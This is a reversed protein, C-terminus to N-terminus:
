ANFFLGDWKGWAPDATSFCDTCMMKSAHDDLFLMGSLVQGNNALIYSHSIHGLFLHKGSGDNLQLRNLKICKELVDFDNQLRIWDEVVDPTRKLMRQRCIGVM